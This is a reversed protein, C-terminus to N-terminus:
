QYSAATLSPFLLPFFTKATSVYSCVLFPFRCTNKKQSRRNIFVTASQSTAEMLSFVKLFFFFFRRQQTHTHTIIISPRIQTLRRGALIPSCLTYYM